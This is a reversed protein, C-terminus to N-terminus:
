SRRKHRHMCVEPGSVCNANSQAWIAMTDSGMFLFLKLEEVAGAVLPTCEDV